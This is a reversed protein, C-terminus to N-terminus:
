GALAQEWMSNVQEDTWELIEIMAQVTPSNREIKGTSDFEIKARPKDIFLANIQETLGSDFVFLNFQRKSLPILRAQDIQKAKLPNIVIM